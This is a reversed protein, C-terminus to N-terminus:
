LFFFFFFFFFCKEYMNYFPFKTGTRESLQRQEVFVVQTSTVCFKQLMVVVHVFIHLASMKKFAASEAFVQRKNLSTESKLLQSFKKKLM